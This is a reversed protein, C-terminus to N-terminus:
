FLTSLTAELRPVIQYLFRERAVSQVELLRGFFNAFKAATPTSSLKTCLLECGVRRVAVRRQGTSDVVSDVYAVASGCGREGRITGGRKEILSVFDNDSIGPCPVANGVTNVLKLVAASSKLTLPIDKFLKSTSPLKKTNSFVQWSLDSNVTIAKEAQLVDDPSHLLYLQM